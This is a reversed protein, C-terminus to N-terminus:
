RAAPILEISRACSTPRAARRRPEHQDPQRRPRDHVDPLRPHQEGQRRLLRARRQHRAAARAPRGTRERVAFPEVARSPRPPAAHAEREFRDDARAARLAQAAPAGRQQVVHAVEHAMLALDTASSARASSSTRASAVRARRCRERGRRRAHADTHVRVAALDARRPQTRLPRQCPRAVARRPLSRPERPARRRWCSRSGSRRGPRRWRRRLRAPELESRARPRPAARRRRATSAVATARARLRVADTGDAAARSPVRGCRASPAPRATSAGCRRRSSRPTSRAATRRPALLAAHLVANRIQGGTLVCRAALEDLFDSPCPTRPRCTCSGSAWREAAEPPRFRGRRGHAAPVRRRHARRRQHHRHPHGRLDRAAPAPLQDRPQRLPRQRDAREHAADAARRGRRAAPRRRAGRRARLRSRPEERDRRHVQQRRASLDLRYLDKQLVAALLRAALTKGTGSPVASCRACAATPPCGRPTRAGSAATGPAPLAARSRMLERLTEEEGRSGELRRRPCRAACRM